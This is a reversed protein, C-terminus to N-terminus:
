FLPCTYSILLILVYIELGKQILKTGQDATPLFIPKEGVRYRHSVLQIIQYSALLGSKIAIMDLRGTHSKAGLCTYFASVTCFFVLDTEGM